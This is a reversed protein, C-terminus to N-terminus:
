LQGVVPRLTVIREMMMEHVQQNDCLDERSEFSINHDRAWEEVFRFEPVILASVFKRDAIVAVQDVYKDVLLLSEVM